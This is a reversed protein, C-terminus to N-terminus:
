NKISAYYLIKEKRDYAILQVATPYQNHIVVTNFSLYFRNSNIETPQPFWAVSESSAGVCVADIADKLISNNVPGEIWYKVPEKDNLQLIPEPFKDIKLSYFDAHDGTFSRPSEFSHLIKEIKAKDGINSWHLVFMAKSPTIRDIRPKEKGAM